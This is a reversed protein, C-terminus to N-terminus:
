NGIVRRGVVNNYTYLSCYKMISFEVPKLDESVTMREIKLLPDGTEINLLGAEEISASVPSISEAADTLTIEFDEKLIKYLSAKEELLDLTLFQPKNVNLYSEQLGIPLGDLTRLRYIRVIISGSEIELSNAISLPAAIQEVRMVEQGALKGNRSAEDSFGDITRRMGRLSVPAVFTGRGQRSVLYGQQSLLRLAKRMTDRSVGFDEAMNRESPLPNNSDYIGTNIRESIIEAVHNYKSQNM